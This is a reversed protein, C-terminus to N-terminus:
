HTKTKPTTKKSGGYIFRMQGINPIWNLSVFGNAIRLLINQRSKAALFAKLPRPWPFEFGSPWYVVMAKGMLYEQPVIGPPFVTGNNGIGKRNWWRGDESNPSNDGLVFFQKKDLTFPSGQVARGNGRSNGYKSSTYHIDRFIALHSVNLKGAGLITVKPQIEARIEGADRPNVGLDYILTEEGANFKLIHDVNAFKLLIPTNEIRFDMKKTKLTQTKNSDQIKEIKMYGDATVPARYKIGYKSLQIALFNDRQPSRACLRVMLDSCFPRFRYYGVNNYAYTARFGNGLSTSYSFQNIQGIPCDLNLMTPKNKDIIWNSDDTDLPLKWTHGNFNGQRPRVPQYVNDYVAMWLEKQVKPPKKQIKGNIYIDGDIIEITEGPLGILRKIYNIDPNLPNKFVVVDWRKPEFFQYICKLVLIRDGRAVPIIGETALYYGCSPCRSHIAQINNQRHNNEAESDYGYDLRYGCQPCRLYFHDGKLTEAMSGTPIRYPEMVFSRFIFALIFAVVLWELPKTFEIIRDKKPSKGTKTKNKSNWM